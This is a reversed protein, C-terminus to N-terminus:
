EEPDPLKEGTLKQEHAEAVKIGEETAKAIVGKPTPSTTILGAAELNAAARAEGGSVQYGRKRLRCASKLVKWTRSTFTSTKPKTSAM